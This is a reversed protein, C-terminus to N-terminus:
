EFRPDPSNKSRQTQSVAAGPVPLQDSAPASPKRGAARFVVAKSLTYNWVLTFATALLKAPLPGVIPSAQWVVLTALGLSALNVVTFLALQTWFGHKTNRDFTWTRNLVFSNLLGCSYSLVNAPVPSWGLGKVLLTFVAFDLATNAIGVLAFRGPRPVKLLSRLTM